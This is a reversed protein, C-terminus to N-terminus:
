RGGNGITFATIFAWYLTDFTTWGERRGAILGPAIIFFALTLFIPSILSLVTFFFKIFIITFGMRLRKKEEPTLRASLDESAVALLVAACCTLLYRLDNQVDGHDLSGVRGASCFTGRVGDEAKTISAAYDDM